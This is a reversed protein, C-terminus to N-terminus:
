RRAGRSTHHGARGSGRWRDRLGTMIGQAIADGLLELGSGEGEIEEPRRHAAHASRVLEEHRLRHRREARWRRLEERESEDLMGRSKDRGTVLSLLLGAGFAIGLSMGRHARIRERLPTVVDIRDRIEEKTNGIRDEIADLTSSIRGRTQEIARRAEETTQPEPGIVPSRRSDPGRRGVKRVVRIERAM